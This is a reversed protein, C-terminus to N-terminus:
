GRPVMWIERYPDTFGSRLAIEQGRGTPQPTMSSSHSFVWDSRQALQQSPPSIHFDLLEIMDPIM